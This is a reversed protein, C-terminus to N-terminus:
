KLLQFDLWTRCRRSLTLRVSYFPFSPGCPWFRQSQQPKFTIQDPPARWQSPRFRKSWLSEASMNAFGNRKQIPSSHVATSLLPQALSQFSTVKWSKRQKSLPENMFLKRRDWRVWLFFQRGPRALTSHFHLPHRATLAPRQESTNTIWHHLIVVVKM